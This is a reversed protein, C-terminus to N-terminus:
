AAEYKANEWTELKELMARAKRVYRSVNDKTLGMAQAAEIQSVGDCLVLYLAGIYAKNRTNKGGMIAVLAKLQKSTM